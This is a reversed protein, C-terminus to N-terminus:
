NIWFDLCLSTSLAIGMFAINQLTCGIYLQKGDFM